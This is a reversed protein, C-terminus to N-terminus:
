EETFAELAKNIDSFQCDVFDENVPVPSILIATMGFSKATKLNRLSDEFMVSSQPEIRCKDFFKEFGERRYKFNYEAEEADFIKKFIDAKVGIQRLTDRAHKATSDTFIFREGSLQRLMGELKPNHPLHSVSVDCIYDMFEKVSIGFQPEMAEAEYHFKHLIEERKKRADTESLNLRVMFFEDVLRECDAEVEGADQYLTADLDFVYSSFRLM